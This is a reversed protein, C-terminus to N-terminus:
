LILIIYGPPPGETTTIVKESDDPIAALYEQKPFVGECYDPIPMINITRRECTLCLVSMSEMGCQSCFNSNEREMNYFVKGCM